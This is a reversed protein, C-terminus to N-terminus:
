PKSVALFKNEFNERIYFTDRKIVSFMRWILKNMVMNIVSRKAKGEAVKRIYFDQLEGKSRVASCASLFLLRKINTNALHSVRSRGRISIGSSHEFPATGCYCAFARASPFRTFNGTAVVISAAVVPGVGPISTLLEMNRNLRSDTKGKILEKIRAEVLTLEENCTDIMKQRCQLNLLAADNGLCQNLQKHSNTYATRTGVLEDRLRLLQSLEQLQFDRAPAPHLRDAKEIGFRAIRCADIADSKGRIMGLSRKIALANVKCYCYQETELWREFRHSYLGTHEMIVGLDERNAGNAKLWRHLRSFGEANNSVSTSKAQPLLYIDITNKSIDCGLIAEKKM